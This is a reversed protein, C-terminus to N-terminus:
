CTPLLEMSGQQSTWCTFSIEEIATEISPAIEKVTRVLRVPDYYANLSKQGEIESVTWVLHVPDSGIRFQPKKALIVFL